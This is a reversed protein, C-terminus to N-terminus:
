VGSCYLDISKAVRPHEVVVRCLQRVPGPIGREGVLWYRLSREDVDLIRVAFQRAALGSAEIARKLLELAENNDM